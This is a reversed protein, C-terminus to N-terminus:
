LNTSCGTWIYCESHHTGCSWLCMQWMHVDEPCKWNMCGSQHHSGWCKQTGFAQQSGRERWVGPNRAFGLIFHVTEPAWKVGTKESADQASWIRQRHCTWKFVSFARLSQWQDRTCQSGKVGLRQQLQLHKWILLPWDPQQVPKHDGQPLAPFLHHVFPLASPNRTSGIHLVEQTESALNM